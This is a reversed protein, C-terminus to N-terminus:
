LNPLLKPNKKALDFLKVADSELKLFGQPQFYFKKSLYPRLTYIADEVSPTIQDEELYHKDLIRVIDTKLRKVFDPFNKNKPLNLVERNKIEKSDVM